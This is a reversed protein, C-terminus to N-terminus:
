KILRRVNEIASKEIRSVQAQSIGLEDAIEMQTKGIIFRELLINKEREKIEKLARKIAILLDRDYNNGKSDALQDHLYIPDGGDNYIPMYISVPDKLSDLAYAIQYEEIGLEQAVEFNSPIHGKKTVYDDKFKIIQYALDKISRSVRISTNDRIYRKVEGLILPVAYTSLMLNYSLDFNDIAKILGIVGVQFLDDLNYSGNNFRQIISLVLKLNGNVLKEKASLDGKKLRKFLENNEELSLSELDNTNIGTIDVKYNAM